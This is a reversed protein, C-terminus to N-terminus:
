EDFGEHGDDDGLVSESSSLSVIVDPRGKRPVTQVWSLLSSPDRFGAWHATLGAANCQVGESASMM